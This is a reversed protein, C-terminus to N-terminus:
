GAHKLVIIRLSILYGPFGGEDEIASPPEAFCGIGEYGRGNTYADIDARHVADHVAMAIERLTKSSMNRNGLIRVGVAAIMGPRGRTGWDVGGVENIRVCPRNGESPIRDDTFVAPSSVGTTFEWTALNVVASADNVILDRVSEALVTSAGETISDEGRRRRV